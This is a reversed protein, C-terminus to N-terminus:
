YPTKVLIARQKRLFYLQCPKLLCSCGHMAQVPRKQYRTEATRRAIIQTSVARKDAHYRQRFQAFYAGGFVMTAVLCELALLNVCRWWFGDNRSPMRISTFQCM